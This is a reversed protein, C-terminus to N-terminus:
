FARYHLGAPEPQSEVLHYALLTLLEESDEETCEEVRLECVYADESDGLRLFISSGLELVEHKRADLSTSMHKKVEHAMEIATNVAIVRTEYRIIGKGEHDSDIHIEVLSGVQFEHPRSAAVHSMNPHYASVLPLALVLASDPWRAANLIAAFHLSCKSSVFIIQLFSTASFSAVMNFLASYLLSAM